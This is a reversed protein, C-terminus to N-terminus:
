QKGPRRRKRMKEHLLGNVFEGMADLKKGDGDFLFQSGILAAVHLDLAREDIVFEQSYLARLFEKRQGDLYRIRQAVGPDFLAWARLCLELRHDLMANLKENLDGPGSGPVGAGLMEQAQEQQRAFFDEFFAHLFDDRGKFHHYFSGTSVGLKSSLTRVDLQSFGDAKLIERAAEFYDHPHLRRSAGAKKMRADGKGAPRAMGASAKGAQNKGKQRGMDEKGCIQM